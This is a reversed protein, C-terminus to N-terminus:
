WLHNSYVICKVVRDLFDHNRLIIRHVWLFLPTYRFSFNFGRWSLLIFFKSGDDRFCTYFPIIIIFIPITNIDIHVVKPQCCIITTTKGKWKELWMILWCVMHVVRLIPHLLGLSTGGLIARGWKTSIMNATSRVLM